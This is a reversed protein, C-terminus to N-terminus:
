RPNSKLRVGPRDGDIFEVGAKELAARMADIDATSSLGIGAEYDWIKAAALVAAVALGNISM